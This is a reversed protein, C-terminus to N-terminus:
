DKKLSKIEKKMEEIQKQQSILYLTLEEVKQLLKTNMEGLEVGNKQAEAASPMNPLHGNKEIFQEVSKLTPLKFNKEFVYDPWNPFTTVLIKEAVIKGNVALKYGDPITPTGVALSNHVNVQGNDKIRMRETPDFGYNGNGDSNIGFVMDFKAQGADDIGTGMYQTKILSAIRIDRAPQEVPSYGMLLGGTYDNPQIKQRTNSMYEIANAYVAGGYLGISGIQAYGSWNEAQYTHLSKSVTNTRTGLSVSNIAGATFISFGGYGSLKTFKERYEAAYVDYGSFYIEPYFSNADGKLHLTPNLGAIEISPEFSKTIQLNGGLALTHAATPETGIGVNGSGAIKLRQTFNTGLVLPDTNLTMVNFANSPTKELFAERTGISNIFSIDSRGNTRDYYMKLHSEQKGVNLNQSLINVNGNGAISFRDIDNTRMVISDNGNNILYFSGSSVKKFYTEILNDDTNVGNGRIFAFSAEGSNRNYALNINSNSVHDGVTVIGTRVLMGNTVTLGILGGNASTVNLGGNFSTLVNTLAGNNTVTQLNQAYSQVSITLAILIISSLKKM